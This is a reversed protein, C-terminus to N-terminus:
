SWFKLFHMLYNFIPTFTLIIIYMYSGFLLLKDMFPIYRMIVRYTIFIQITNFSMFYLIMRMVPNGISFYFICLEILILIKKSPYFWYKTNNKEQQIKIENRVIFLFIFDLVVIIFTYFGTNWNYGVEYNLFDASLSHSDFYLPFFTKYNYWKPILGIIGLLILEIHYISMSILYYYHKKFLFNYLKEIKYLSIM